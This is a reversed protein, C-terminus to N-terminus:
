GQTIAEVIATATVEPAMSMSYHNEDITLTSVKNANRQKLKEVWAQQYALPAVTDKATHIYTVPIHDVAWYDLRDVFSATSHNRLQKMLESAENSPLGPWFLSPDIDSDIYM